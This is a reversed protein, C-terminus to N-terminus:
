RDVMQAPNPQFDQFFRQNMRVRVERTKKLLSGTLIVLNEVKKKEDKNKMKNITKSVNHNTEEGDM